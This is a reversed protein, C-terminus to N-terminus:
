QCSECVVPDELGCELPTDDIFPDLEPREGLMEEKVFDTPDVQHEMADEPNFCFCDEACEPCEQCACDYHYFHCVCEEEECGCDRTHSLM